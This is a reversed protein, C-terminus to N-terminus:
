IKFSTKPDYIKKVLKKKHGYLLSVSVKVEAAEVQAWGSEVWRGAGTALVSNVRAAEIM